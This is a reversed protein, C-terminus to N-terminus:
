RVSAAVVELVDMIRLRGRESRDIKSLGKKLNDKCMACASAIVDVGLGIGELVRSRAIESSLDPNIGQLAGGGGCCLAQERNNAFEVLELEPIRALLRRPPDYVGLHRGLDCPDHYAVRKPFPRAFKLLGGEALKEVYEVLHFVEFDFGAVEPYLEVFAKYCGACPTVITKIGSARFKDILTKAMEEFRPDGMLWAIYGCCNEEKGLLRYQINAKELIEISSPIIKLDVYAPVCGMFLLIEGAAPIEEGPAPIEKETLGEKLAVREEDALVRGAAAEPLIDTREEPHLGFPNSASALNRLVTETQPLSQGERRMRKRCAHVVDVVKIRAPCNTTCSMCYTCQFLRDTLEPSSELEGSLLSYALILKGRANTSELGTQRFVPCARRCFGCQVCALIENDLERGFSAIKEPSDVIQQFAFHDYIDMDEEDLAMKGPNLINDPDLAAKIKRMVELGSGWEEGAFPAKALGTGHEASITGGLDMTLKILDHGVKRIKEWHSRNRVDCIFTSHINGDGAHGFSAILIDNEEAIKSVGELADPIRSVPVGFDEAIPILRSGETLRSLSPVLGARGKWLGAREVPDDTWRVEKGGTERCITVIKDMEERVSAPSGDVEMLLMGGVEPLGLNMAKNVVRISMRDIFECVSLPIGEMLIRSTAEGATVMEDFYSVALATYEPRPHIKVVIETFIGLTGESNVFLDTLDYGSSSKPTKIGTHIVEGSALVITLGMVHDKTTGYKVARLGSANTAVMGGITCVSSSGPDPAFFWGPQLSENLAQCVVGPEVVAYLDNKNIEVIRKMLSMDMLIGGRIPLIAGTVSTGAGRVTVPTKRSSAWKVIGVVEETSVPFVIVDPIGKHVSMDRSCSLLELPDSNVRERGVIAQLESALDTM